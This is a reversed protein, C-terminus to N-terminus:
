KISQRRCEARGAVSEKEPDTKSEKSQIFESSKCNNLYISIIEHELNEVEKKKEKLIELSTGCEIKVAIQEVAILVISTSFYELFPFSLTDTLIIWATDLVQDGYKKHKLHKWLVEHLDMFLFDFGILSCIVVETQLLCQSSAEKYINQEAWVFQIIEKKNALIKRVGENNLPYGSSQHTEIILKSVRRSVGAVKESINLLAILLSGLSDFQQTAKKTYLTYVIRYFIVIGVSITGQNYLFTEGKKQIESVVLKIDKSKGICLLEERNYMFIFGWM